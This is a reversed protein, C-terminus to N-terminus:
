DSYQIWWDRLNELSAKLEGRKSRLIPLIRRQEFTNGNGYSKSIEDIEQRLMQIKSYCEKAETPLPDVEEPLIDPQNCYKIIENYWQVEPYKDSYVMTTQSQPNDLKAEIQVVKKLVESMDEPIRPRPGVKQIHSLVKNCSELFTAKTFEEPDIGFTLVGQKANKELMIIPSIGERLAYGLEQNVSASDFTNETLIAIMHDSNRIKAIIKDRILKNYERRTEAIYGDIGAESLVQQLKQALNLDEDVFTHSIFVKM